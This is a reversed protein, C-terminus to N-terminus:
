VQLRVTTGDEVVKKALFSAGITSANNEQFTSHVYRLVLSSKGVSQQGLIVVKRDIEHTHQQVHNQGYRGGAIMFLYRHTQDALWLALAISSHLRDPKHPHPSSSISPLSDIGNNYLTPM